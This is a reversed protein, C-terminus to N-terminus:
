QYKPEVGYADRVAGAVRKLLSTPTMTDRDEQFALFLDIDHLPRVCTRRGYSGSLVAKTPRLRQKMNEFVHSKLRDAKDREDETLKLDQVFREFAEAVTVMSVKRAQRCSFVGPM